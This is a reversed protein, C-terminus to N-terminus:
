QNDELENATIKELQHPLKTTFLDDGKDFRTPTPQTAYHTSGKEFIVDRSKFIEGIV